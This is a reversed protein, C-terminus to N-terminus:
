DIRSAGEVRDFILCHDRGSERSVDLLDLEDVDGLLHAGVQLVPWTECAPLDVVPALALMMLRNPVLAELIHRVPFLLVDLLGHEVVGVGVEVVLYIPGRVHLVVGQVELPAHPDVRMVLVLAAEEHGDEGLQYVVVLAEDIVLEVLHVRPVVGVDALLGDELIESLESFLVLSIELLVLFFLAYRGFLASLVLYQAEDLLRLVLRLGALLCGADFVPLHASFQGGLLLLCERIALQNVRLELNPHIQLLEVPDVTFEGIFVEEELLIRM